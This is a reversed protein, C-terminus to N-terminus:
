RGAARRVGASAATAVKLVIADEAVAIMWDPIGAHSGLWRRTRYTLVAAVAAAAGGILAGRLRQRGGVAAVSAGVLAGAAIRGGLAPPAVRAPIGPIKDGIVEGASLLSLMAAARPHALARAPQSAGRSRNRLAHAVITPGIMSRAGSAAGLLLTTRDASNLTAM